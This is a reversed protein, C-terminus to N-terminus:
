TRDCVGRRYQLAIPLRGKDGATTSMTVAPTSDGDDSRSGWIGLRTVTQGMAGNKKVDEVLHKYPWCELDATRDTQITLAYTSINVPGLIATLSAM